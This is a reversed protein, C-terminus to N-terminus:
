IRMPMVVGTFAGPNTASRFVVPDLENCAEIAVAGDEVDELVTVMDAAYKAAIGFVIPTGEVECELEERVEGLDPNDSTLTLTGPGLSFKIGRVQSSMLACRKIAALLAERPLVARRLRSEPIVKEYPPFQADILKAALTLGDRTVFILPSKIGLQVKNAGDLLKRLELAAKKPIIVGESLKPGKFARDAKVLRHGDTSVMRATKGSSEFLVGNLHFRSEDNCVSGQTERIMALLPAADVEQMSAAGPDPIKPFDRTPLGIIRYSAKGGRIEAWNNEVKRVTVDGAPLAAVIDLLAKANVCLAGPTAGITPVKAVTTLNVDTATITVRDVDAAVLATALIPMTSKRDAVAAAARLAPLLASTHLKFDM